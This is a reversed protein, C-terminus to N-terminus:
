SQCKNCITNVLDAIEQVVSQAATEVEPSLTTGFDFNKGRISFLIGHPRRNYLVHCLALLDAPTLYHAVAHSQFNPEVESKLILHPSQPVSADVFIVTDFHSITEALEVELQHATLLEVDPLGIEQLREIVFWGVGDDTRSRNGYGIVLIKM